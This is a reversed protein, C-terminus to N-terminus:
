VARTKIARSGTASMIKFGKLMNIGKERYKKTRRKRIEPRKAAISVVLALSWIEMAIIWNALLSFNFFRRDEIVQRIEAKMAIVSNQSERQKRFYLKPPLAVPKLKSLNKTAAIGM